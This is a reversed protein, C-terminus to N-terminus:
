KWVLGVRTKAGTGDRGLSSTPSESQHRLHARDEAAGKYELARISSIEEETAIESMEDRHSVLAEFTRELSLRSENMGRSM